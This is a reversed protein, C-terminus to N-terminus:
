LDLLWFLRTQSLSAIAYAREFPDNTNLYLQNMNFWDNYDLTNQIHYKYVSGRFNLPVRLFFVCISKIFMFLLLRFNLLAYENENRFDNPNDFYDSPIEKYYETVKELCEADHLKCLFDILTAKLLKETHEGDEGWLNM